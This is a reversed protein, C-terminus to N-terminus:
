AQTFVPKGTVKYTLAMTMKDDLPTEQGIGTLIGEFTWDSGDTFLIQYTRATDANFDTLANAIASASGTDNPDWFVPLSVEGGDRLSSLFERYRDTSAFHTADVTDKSLSPGSITDHVGAVTTFTEPPGDANGRKFLTGHGIQAM